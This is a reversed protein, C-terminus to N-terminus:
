HIRPSGFSSEAKYGHTMVFFYAAFPRNGADSILEFVHEDERELPVAQVFSIQDPRIFLEGLLRKGRILQVLFTEDDETAFRWHLDEDDYIVAEPTGARLICNPHGNIWQWFDEFSVNFPPEM